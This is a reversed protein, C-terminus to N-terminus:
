TVIFCFNLGICCHISRLCQASKERPKKIELQRKAATLFAEELFFHDVKNREETLEEEELGNKAKEVRWDEDICM